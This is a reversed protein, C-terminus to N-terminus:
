EKKLDVFRIEVRRNKARGLESENSAIPYDRGYSSVHLRQPEIGIAILYDAVSLARNEGLTYNYKSSGVADTHGRIDLEITPNEQLIAGLDNLFRTFSPKLNAKDFDFLIMDIRSDTNVMALVPIAGVELNDETANSLVGEEVNFTFLLTDKMELYEEIPLIMRNIIDASYIDAFGSDRVSSFYLKKNKIQPYAEFESTNVEPGLNQIDSWANWTTDLRKIALIDNGGVGGFGDSSFLLVRKDDTIFPSIDNGDSNVNSDLHILEGWAGSKNKEIIYLDNMGYSGEGNMSLLLLNEDPHMYMGYFDGNFTLKPIDILEKESWSNGEKHIMSLGSEVEKNSEDNLLYVRNGDKSIGVIADNNKTDTPSFIAPINFSSNDKNALWIDHGSKIGGTNDDSFARVFSLVSDNPWLLPMIEEADSNISDIPNINEFDYYFYDLYYTNDSLKTSDLVAITDRKIQTTSELIVHVDDSLSSSPSVTTAFIIPEMDIASSLSIEEGNKFAVLFAGKFGRESLIERALVAIQYRTILGIYYHKGSSYKISSVPYFNKFLTSNVEDSYSGIKIRYHLNKPSSIDLPVPHNEYYNHDMEEFLDTTLSDPFEQARVNKTIVLLFLTAIYYSLKKM